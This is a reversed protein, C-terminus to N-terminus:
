WSRLSLAMKLAIADLNQHDPNAEWYHLSILYLGTPTSCYYDIWRFSSTETPGVQERMITQILRTCGDKRPDRIPVERKDIYEASAAGKAMWNELTTVGSPGRGVTVQAGSPPLFVGRLAESITFNIIDLSDKSALHSGDLRTRNWSSPYRVLFREPKSIFTKWVEPNSAPASTTFVAGMVLATTSLIKM